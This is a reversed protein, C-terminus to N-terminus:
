GRRQRNLERLTRAGDYYGARALGERVMPAADPMKPPASWGTTENGVEVAGRARLEDRVQRRGKTIQLAHGPGQKPDQMGLHTFNDIDGVNFPSGTRKEPEPRNSGPGIEVVCELDRDWVWRTRTM